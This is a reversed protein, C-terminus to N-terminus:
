KAEQRVQDQRPAEDLVGALGLDMIRVYELSSQSVFTEVRIGNAGTGGVIGVPLGPPFVGGQGSTM